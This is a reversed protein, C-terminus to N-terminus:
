WGLDVSHCCIWGTASGRRHGASRPSPMFPLRLLHTLLIKCAVLEIATYTSCGTHDAQVTRLPSVSSARRYRRDPHTKFASRALPPASSAPERPCAPLPRWPPTPSREASHHARPPRSISKGKARTRANAVGNANVELILKPWDGILTPYHHQPPMVILVYSIRGRTAPPSYVLPPASSPLSLLADRRGDLSSFETCGTVLSSGDQM